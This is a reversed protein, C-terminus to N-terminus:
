GRVRLKRSSPKASTQHIASLGPRPSFPVAGFDEGFTNHPLQVEHFKVIVADALATPSSKATTGDRQRIAIYDQRAIRELKRVKDRM